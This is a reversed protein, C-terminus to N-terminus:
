RPPPATARRWAAHALSLWTPALRRDGVEPMMNDDTVLRGPFDPKPNLQGLVKELLPGRGERAFWPQDGDMLHM